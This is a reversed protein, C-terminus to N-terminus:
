YYKNIFKSNDYNQLTNKLQQSSDVRRLKPHNRVKMMGRGNTVFQVNLLANAMVKYSIHHRPSKSYIDKRLKSLETLTTFM